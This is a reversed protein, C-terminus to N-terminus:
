QACFRLLDYHLVSLQDHVPMTSLDFVIRSSAHEFHDSTPDQLYSCLSTSNQRKYTAALKFHDGAFAPLCKVEDRNVM